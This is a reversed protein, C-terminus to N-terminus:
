IDCRPGEIYNRISVAIEEPSETSSLVIHIDAKRYDSLRKEYLKRAEAESEFLPRRDQEQQTLRDLLVEFPVHLWVTTGRGAIWNRNQAESLTGGGLAVVAPPRDGLAKLVSSELERFGKEGRSAFIEAISGGAAAEIRQDLDVFPRGLLRALFLGITSKGAGM